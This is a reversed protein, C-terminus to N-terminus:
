YMSKRTSRRIFNNDHLMTSFFFCVFILCSQFLEVNLVYFYANICVCVHVYIYIYIHIYRYINRTCVCLYTCLCV